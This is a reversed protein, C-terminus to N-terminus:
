PMVLVGRFRVNGKQMHELAEQAKELPFKEIMCKIGHVKAFDIADMSDIVHGSPWATVSLAKGIMMPQNITIPGCAALTLLKGRVGLGKMLPDILGPNPATLVICKAGGLKQLEASVDQTSTDIYHHAGLSLAFDRKSSSSSIAAVTYGMKPYYQLALHGLGGLGQVAVLSGIPISQNRLSNFVTIGACLLPAVEYPDIDTPIPVIAETRLIVYEGYGGDRKIGNIDANECFQFDGRRCETCTGDRGGHWAAGIRDGVKWQKEGEGVAAVDGVIEHGPSIPFKNGYSGQQCNSESGCVGCAIVKMLVEGPGPKKLEVDKITLPAGKEEFAAVKYTKPLSSTDTSM